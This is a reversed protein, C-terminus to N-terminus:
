DLICLSFETKDDDDFQVTLGFSRKNEHNIFDWLPNHYTDEPPM